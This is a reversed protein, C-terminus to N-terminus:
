FRVNVRLFYILFMVSRVADVRRIDVTKIAISPANTIGGDGMKPSNPLYTTIAYIAFKKATQNKTAMFTIDFITGNFKLHSDSDRLSSM